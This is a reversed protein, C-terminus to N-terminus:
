ATVKWLRNMMNHPDKYNRRFTSKLEKVSSYTYLERTDNRFRGRSKVAMVDWESQNWGFLCFDIEGLDCHSVRFFKTKYRSLFEEIVPATHESVLRLIGEKSYTNEKNQRKM